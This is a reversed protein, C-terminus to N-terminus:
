SEEVQRVFYNENTRSIATKERRAAQEANMASGVVSVVKGTAIEVIEVRYTTMYDGKHEGHHGIGLTQFSILFNVGYNKAEGCTKLSFTRTCIRFLIRILPM